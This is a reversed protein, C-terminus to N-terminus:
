PKPVGPSRFGMFGIFGIFGVVRYVRFGVKYIWPSRLGMFGIFGLGKISGRYVRYFFGRPSRLGM